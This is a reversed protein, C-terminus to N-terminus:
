AIEADAEFRLFLPHDPAQGDEVTVAVPYPPTFGKDEFRVDEGLWRTVYALRRTGAAANPYSAHVTLGHHIVCDGPELSFTREAERFQDSEFDPPEAGRGGPWPRYEVGWRHSGALYRLAGGEESVPDVALWLSCMGAGRLPWHSADQHWKTAASHGAVKMFIQDYYLRVAAANMAEAAIRALKGSIVFEECAAETLRLFSDALSEGNLAMLRREGYEVRRAIEAFFALEDAPVAGRVVAVGDAAFREALETM